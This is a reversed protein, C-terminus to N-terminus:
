MEAFGVPTSIRDSYAADISSISPARDPQTFAVAAACTTAASLPLRVALEWVPHTITAIPAGAAAASM